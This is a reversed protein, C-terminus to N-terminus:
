EAIKDLRQKTPPEKKRKFVQNLQLRVLEELVDRPFTLNLELTLKKGVTGPVLDELEEESMVYGEGDEPEYDAPILNNRVREREREVPDWSIVPLRFMEPPGAEDREARKKREASAKKFLGGLDKPSLSPFDVGKTDVYEWPDWNLDWKAL